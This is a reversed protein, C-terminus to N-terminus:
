GSWDAPENGSDCPGQFFPDGSSPWPNTISHRAGHDVYCWTGGSGAPEDPYPGADTLGWWFEAADLTM